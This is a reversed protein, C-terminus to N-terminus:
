QYSAVHEEFTESFAYKMKGDDDPGIFFYYYDTQEPNCAAQICGLSPSDIPTPPLGIYSYTNYPHDELLEDPTPERGVIYAMTADSDLAMDIEMRNYFVSAVRERFNTDTEREIISALKIMDYFSYGQESAYTSAFNISSTELKFQDLMARIISDATSSSDIPYSKPFLFGELSNTGVGELFPYNSAYVSADSAAAEFQQATISGNSAEAVIQATQKITSGEPITFMVAQVPTQLVEILEDVSMGGVLTFTGPHLSGTANLRALRDTFESARSILGAEVLKDGVSNAGEGENIVVTVETGDPVLNGASCGKFSTFVAFIILALAIILVVVAIIAPVPSRKPRIASTDYTRFLKDGKAHASRAAHTPRASYTVNKRSAM